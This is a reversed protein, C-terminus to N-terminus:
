IYFCVQLVDNLAQITNAIANKAKDMDHECQSFTERRQAITRRLFENEECTQDRRNRYM